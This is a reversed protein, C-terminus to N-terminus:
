GGPIFDFGLSKRCLRCGGTTVLCTKIEAFAGLRAFFFECCDKVSQYIDVDIHVFSFLKNTVPESTAPFFGPYFKVNSFDKLFATVGALSTTSVEGRVHFVGSTM